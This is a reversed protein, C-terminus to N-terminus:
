KEIKWAKKMAHNKAYHPVTKDIEDSWAQIGGELNQVKKFGQEQLFVAASMSRGGHHCYAVIKKEKFPGLKQFDQQFESLPVLRETKAGKIKATEHEYPERVDLLLFDAKSDILKKLEKPTM